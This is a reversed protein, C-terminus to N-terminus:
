TRETIPVPSMTLTVRHGLLLVSSSELNEQILGILLRYVNRYITREIFDPILPNNIRDNCLFREVLADIVDNTTTDREDEVVVVVADKKPGLGVCKRIRRLVNGM